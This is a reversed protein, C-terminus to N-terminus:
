RVSDRTTGVDQLEKVIKYYHEKDREWLRNLIPNIVKWARKCYMKPYCPKDCPKNAMQLATTTCGCITCSGNNYCEKDMVMIRFEIQERIHKRILGKFNSYFLKYRITGQIYSIVDRIPHKSQKLKTILGMNIM